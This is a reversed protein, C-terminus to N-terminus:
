AKGEDIFSRMNRIMEQYDNSLTELVKTHSQSCGETSKKKQRRLSAEEQGLTVIKQLRKAASALIVTTPKRSLMEKIREQPTRKKPIKKRCNKCSRRSTCAIVTMNKWPFSVVPLSEESNEIWKSLPVSHCDHVTVTGDPNIIGFRAIFFLLYKEMLVVQPSEKNLCLWKLNDQDDIRSLEKEMAWKREHLESNSLIKIVKGNHDRKPINKITSKFSAVRFYGEREPHIGELPLIKVIQRGNRSKWIALDHGEWDDRKMSGLSKCPIMFTQKFCYYNMICEYCGHDAYELEEKIIPELQNWYKVARELSPESSRIIWPINKEKRFLYKFHRSMEVLDRIIDEGGYNDQMMIRDKIVSFGVRKEVIDGNTDMVTITKEPLSFDFIEYEVIKQDVIDFLIFKLSYLGQQCKWGFTPDEKCPKWYKPEPLKVNRIKVKKTNKGMEKLLVHTPGTMELLDRPLPYPLNLSPDTTHYDDNSDSPSAQTFIQNSTFNPVISIKFTGESDENFAEEDADSKPIITEYEDNM